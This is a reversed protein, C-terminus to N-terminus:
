NEIWELEDQAQFNDFCSQLGARVEDLNDRVDGFSADVCVNSNLLLYQLNDAGDIFDPDIANIQNSPGNMVRLTPLANGFSIANLADIQNNYFYILELSTLNHFVGDQFNPLNNNQVYLQKLNVNTFFWAHHLETLGCDAM